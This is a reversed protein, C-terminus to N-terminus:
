SLLSPRKPIQPSNPDNLISGGRPASINNSSGATKATMNQRNTNVFDDIKQQMDAKNASSANDMMGAM